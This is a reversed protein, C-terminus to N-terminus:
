AEISPPSFGRSARDDLWLSLVAVRWLAQATYASTKARRHRLDRFARQTTARDAYFWVRADHRAILHELWAGRGNLLGMALHPTFDLKGPRNRVLPPLDIAQRMVWRSLGGRLKVEEPLSLCLALLDRDWFPYRPAVGSASAAAHLTELAMAQQPETVTAYHLRASEKLGDVAVGSAASHNGLREAWHPAVFGGGPGVGERKPKGGLARRLRVALSVWRRAPGYKMWYLIWLVLRRDGSGTAVANLESWLVSWCGQRALSHLREWGYSVVEDGGHGDLLVCRGVAASFAYLNRGIALGPASFIAGHEAFHSGIDALPDAAGGDVYYGRLKRFEKVTAIFERESWQPSEDFVQSVTEPSAQGVSRCIDAATVAISSSDLGGSLLATVQDPRALREKVAANFIQRFSAVPDAGAWPQPPTIPPECATLVASAACEKRFRVGPALRLIDALYTRESQPPLGGVFRAVSQDDIRQSGGVGLIFRIESAVITSHAFESYYIPRVGLGDRGALLTRREADWLVFNYDEAFGAALSGHQHYTRLLANIGLSRQEWLTKTCAEPDALSIDGMAFVGGSYASPLDTTALLVIESDAHVLQLLPGDPQTTRRVAELDLEGATDGWVAVFGTM